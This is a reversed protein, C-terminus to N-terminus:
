GVVSAMYGLSGLYLGLFTQFYHFVLHGTMAAMYQTM